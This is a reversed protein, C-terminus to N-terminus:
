DKSLFRCPSMAGVFGLRISFARARLVAMLAM